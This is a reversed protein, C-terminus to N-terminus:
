RLATPNSLRGRPVRAEPHERPDLPRAQWPLIVRRRQKNSLSAVLVAYRYFRMVNRGTVTKPISRVLSRLRWQFQARRRRQVPNEGARGPRASTATIPEM